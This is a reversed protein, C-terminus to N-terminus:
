EVTVSKALNKPKDINVNLDLAKYYSLLHIYTILPIFRYKCDCKNTYVRIINAGRSEAEILSMEVNDMYVNDSCLGIVTTNSDVIAISGHKLESAYMSYSNIYAVERLKLSFELGVYYDIGSSVIIAKNKIENKFEMQLIKLVELKIKDLYSLDNKLYNEKIITFILAMSFFAKTSAVSIEPGACLSYAKIKKAMCSNLNNTFLVYNLNEKLVNMLDKTEGSQSLLITKLDKHYYKFEGGAYVYSKCLDKLLYGGILSAYYSSGCGVINIDELIFDFDKYEKKLKDIVMKEEYIEKIMYHKFSGLDYDEDKNIYLPEYKVSLLDLNYILFEDKNLVLVKEELDIYSKGDILGKIDSSIIKKNPELYLPMDNSFAYLFTPNYSDFLIVAYSGVLEKITYEIAKLINFENLYYEVLHAIIESDTNSLFADNKFYREKIDKYNKIIGNHVIYIRKKQSHHPHTNEISVIGDTAWRTHAMGITGDFDIPFLKDVGGIEKKIHLIGDYILVGASDYGRYELRKLAVYLIHNCSKNIAGVIGCM